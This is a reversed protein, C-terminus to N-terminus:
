FNRNSKCIIKFIFLFYVCVPILLVVFWFSFIVYSNYMTYRYQHHILGSSFSSVNNNRDTEIINIIINADMKNKIFGTYEHVGCVPISFDLVYDYQIDSKENDPVKNIIQAGNNALYYNVTNEFMSNIYMNDYNSVTCIVKKGSYKEFDINDIGISIAEYLVLEYAGNPDILDVPTYSSLITSGHDKSCSTLLPVLFLIFPFFWKKM